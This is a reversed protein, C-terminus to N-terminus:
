KTSTFTIKSYDYCIDPRSKGLNITKKQKKQRYLFSISLQGPFQINQQFKFIESDYYVDNENLFKSLFLFESNFCCCVTILDLFYNSTKLFLNITIIGTRILSRENFHYM